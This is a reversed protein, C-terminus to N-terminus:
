IGLGLGLYALYPWGIGARFLLHNKGTYRYGLNLSPFNMKKDTQSIFIIGANFELHKQYNGTLLLLSPMHYYRVSGNYAKFYFLQYQVGWYLRKQLNSYLVVDGGFCPYQLGYTGFFSIKPVKYLDFEGIGSKIVIEKDFYCDTRILGVKGKDITTNIEKGKKFINIQYAHESSDAIKCVISDGNNYYIVDYTQAGADICISLIFIVFFGAKM